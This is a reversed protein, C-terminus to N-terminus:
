DIRVNNGLRRQARQFQKLQSSTIADSKVTIKAAPAASATSSAISLRRATATAVLSKATVTANAGTSAFTPTTTTKTPGDYLAFVAVGQKAGLFFGATGNIQSSITFPLFLDVPLNLSGSQAITIAVGLLIQTGNVAIYVQSNSNFAPIGIPTLGAPLVLPIATGSPLTTGSALGPLKLATTADVDVKIDLGNTQIQGLVQSPNKPNYLPLTVSPLVISGPALTADIGVYLDGNQVQNTFAVNTVVKSGAGCGSLAFTLATLTLTRAVIPNLRFNSTTAM